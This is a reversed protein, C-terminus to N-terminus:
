NLSDQLMEKMLDDDGYGINHATEVMERDGGIRQYAWVYRLNGSKKKGSDEDEEEDDEREGYPDYDPDEWKNLGYPVGNVNAIYEYDHHLNITNDSTVKKFKLASPPIKSILRRAEWLKTGASNNYSYDYDANFIVSDSIETIRDKNKIGVLLSDLYDAFDQPSMANLEDPTKIITTNESVLIREYLSELLIQDKNRM